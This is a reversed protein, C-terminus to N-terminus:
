ISSGGPSTGVSVPRLFSRRSTFLLVGALLPYAVSGDGGGVDLLDLGRLSTMAALAHWARSAGWFRGASPGERFVSIMRGQARDFAFCDDVNEADPTPPAGCTLGAARGSARYHKFLATTNAAAGVAAVVAPLRGYAAWDCDAVM